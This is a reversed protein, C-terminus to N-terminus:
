NIIVESNGNLENFLLLYACFQEIKEGLLFIIVIKFLHTLYNLGLVELKYHVYLKHLINLLWYFPM